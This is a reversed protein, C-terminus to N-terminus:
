EITAIDVKHMNLNRKRFSIIQLSAKLAPAELEAAVRHALERFEVSSTYNLPEM